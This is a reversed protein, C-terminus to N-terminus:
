FRKGIFLGLTPTLNYLGFEASITVPYALEFGIFVHLTGRMSSVVGTKSLAPRIKGQAMLMNMGLYPKVRVYDKSAYVGFEFNNGTYDGRFASVYTYGAFAAVSLWGSKEQHFSWKIIGGTATYGPHDAFPMTSFILETNGWLGKTLHFRPLGFITPEAGNKDGLSNFGYQPAVSFDVGFRIGPWTPYAEASHM